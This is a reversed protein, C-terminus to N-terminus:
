CGQCVVWKGKRIFLVDCAANFYIGNWYEGVKLAKTGFPVFMGLIVPQGREALFRIEVLQESAKKTMAEFCAEKDRITKQEAQQLAKEVKAAEREAKRCAAAAQRAARAIKSAEALKQKSIRAVQKAAKLYVKMLMADKKQKRLKRRADQTAQKLCKALMVKRQAIEAVQQHCTSLTSKLVNIRTAVMISSLKTLNKFNKPFIELHKSLRETKSRIKLM